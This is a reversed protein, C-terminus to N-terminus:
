GCSDVVILNMIIVKTCERYNSKKSLLKKETIAEVKLREKPAAKLFKDLTM